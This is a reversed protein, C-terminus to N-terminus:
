ALTHTTQCIQSHVFYNDLMNKCKKLYLFLLVTKLHLLIFLIDIFIYCFIVINIYRRHVYVLMDINYMYM